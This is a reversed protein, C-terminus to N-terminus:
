DPLNELVLFLIELRPDGYKRRAIQSAAERAAKQSQSNFLQKNINLKIWIIGILRYKDAPM